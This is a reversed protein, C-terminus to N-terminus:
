RLSVRRSMECKIMSIGRCTFGRAHSDTETNDTHQFTPLLELRSSQASLLRVHIKRLSIYACSQLPKLSVSGYPLQM